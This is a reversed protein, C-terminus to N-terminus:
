PTEEKPLLAPAAPVFGPLGDRVAAEKEGHTMRKLAAELRSASARDPLVWAAEMGVPPHSRTYKAGKKGSQHERFRRAPDTTIGVYLSGDRCRLLYTYYM